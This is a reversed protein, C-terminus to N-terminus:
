TLWEAEGLLASNQSITRIICTHLKKTNSTDHREHQFMRMHEQKGLRLATRHATARGDLRGSAPLSNDDEANQGAFGLLGDGDFGHNAVASGSVTWVRM